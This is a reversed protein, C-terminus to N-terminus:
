GRTERAGDSSDTSSHSATEHSGGASATGQREKTEEGGHDSGKKGFISNWNDRYTEGTGMRVTFSKKLFETM